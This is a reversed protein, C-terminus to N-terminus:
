KAGTGILKLQTKKCRKCRDQDRLYFTPGIREWGQGDHKWDHGFYKVLCVTEDVVKKVSTLNLM